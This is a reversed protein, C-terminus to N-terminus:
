CGDDQLTTEWPLPRAHKLATRKMGYFRNEVRGGEQNHDYSEPDPDEKALFM